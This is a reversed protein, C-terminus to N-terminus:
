LQAQMKPAPYNNLLTNSEDLTATASKFQGSIKSSINKISEFLHSFLHTAATCIENISAGLNFVKGKIESMARNLAEASQPGSEPKPSPGRSDLLKELEKTITNEANDLNTQLSYIETLSNNLGDKESTLKSMQKRAAMEWAVEEETKNDGKEELLKLREEYTRLHENIKDLTSKINDADESLKKSQQNKEDFLSDIKDLSTKIDTKKSQIEQYDGKAPM